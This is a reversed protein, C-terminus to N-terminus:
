KVQEIKGNQVEAIINRGFKELINPDEQYNEIGQMEM